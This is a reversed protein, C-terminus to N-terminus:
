LIVTCGKFCCKETPPLCLTMQYFATVDSNQHKEYNLKVSTLL